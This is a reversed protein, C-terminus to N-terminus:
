NFFNIDNEFATGIVVLDAGADHALQIGQLTIIGGGVILPIKINQAVATIMNPPVAQKAGSGAELYILQHGLMEGALATAVVLDINSRDLPKTESVSEVATQTGSEILVYGTPIIELHTRKLIPAAQVQHAILYDPNRGSILSLFLIGDAKDSIQSPNGPFLVVPLACDRKLITILEDLINTTVHSGGIFLHTAPSQNIKPILVSLQAVTIKDPDLLIALLKQNKTKAKIIQTYLNDM